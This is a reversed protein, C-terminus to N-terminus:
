VLPRAVFVPAALTELSTVAISMGNSSIILMHKMLAQMKGCVIFDFLNRGLILPYCALPSADMFPHVLSQDVYSDWVSGNGEISIVDGHANTIYALQPCTVSLLALPATNLGHATTAPGSTGPHHRAYRHDTAESAYQHGPASYTSATPNLAAAPYSHRRGRDHPNGLHIGNSSRTSEMSSSSHSTFSSGTEAGNGAAASPIGNRAGNSERPRHRASKFHPPTPPREVATFDSPRPHPHPIPGLFAALPNSRLAPPNLPSQAAHFPAHYEDFTASGGGSTSFSAASPAATPPYQMSFQAIDLYSPDTSPGCADDHDMSPHQPPPPYSFTAAGPAGRSAYYHLNIYDHPHSSSSTRSSTPHRSRRPAHSPPFSSGDPLLPAGADRHSSATPAYYPAFRTSSPSPAGSHSRYRHVYQQAPHAQPPFQYPVMPDARIAADFFASPASTTPVGLSPAVAASEGPPLPLPLPPADLMMADASSRHNPYM